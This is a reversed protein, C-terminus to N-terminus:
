TKQKILFSIVTAGLVLWMINITEGGANIAWRLGACHPAPSVFPSLMFGHITWPVCWRAYLHVAFYHLGVFVLYYICSKALANM